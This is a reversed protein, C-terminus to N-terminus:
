DYSHKLICVIFIKMGLQTICGFSGKYEVPSIEVIFLPVITSGIGVSLGLLAEAVFQAEFNHVMRICWAIIVLTDSIMICMRRGLYSMYGAALAGFVAMLPGITSFFNYKGKDSQNTEGGFIWVLSDMTLTLEGMMYGFQFIGLAIVGMWPLLSYNFKKEM